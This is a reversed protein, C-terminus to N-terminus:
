VALFDDIAKMDRREAKWDNALQLYVDAIGEFIQATSLDGAFAAVERMEFEWRHAKPYMDPLSRGIHALLQPRSYALEERLAKAAGARTAALAMAAALATLGKNFGAYAMKLASAAGVPGHTSRARLGLATLTAVDSPMEGALHLTPGSQDPRWPAGIISGDVFRAGSAAILKEIVAVTDVSVANCDVYVAKKASRQLPGQFRQALAVADKPPVISLIFDAAAIEDDDADIMGVRKAREVTAASRHALSTLVRADQRSLREGISCGMEGAAVVAVITTM